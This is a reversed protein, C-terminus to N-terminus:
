LIKVLDSTYIICYEQNCASRISDIARYLHNSENVKGSYNLYTNVNPRKYTCMEAIERTINNRKGMHLIDYLDLLESQVLDNLNDFGEIWIKDKLNTAM